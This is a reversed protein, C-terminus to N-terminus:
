RADFLCVGVSLSLSLTLVFLQTAPIHKTSKSALRQAEAEIGKLSMKIRATEKFLGM